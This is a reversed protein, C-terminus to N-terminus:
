SCARSEFLPTCNQSEQRSNGAAVAAAPARHDPQMTQLQKQLRALEQQMERRNQEAKDSDDMPEQESEIEVKGGWPQESRRQDLSSHRTPESDNKVPSVGEVDDKTEHNSAVDDRHLTQLTGRIAKLRRDM